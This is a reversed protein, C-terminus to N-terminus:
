VLQPSSSSSISLSDIESFPLKSGIIRKHLVTQFPKSIWALVLEANNERVDDENFLKRSCKGPAFLALNLCATYLIYREIVANGAAPFYYMINSIEHGATIRRRTFGIIIPRSGAERGDSGSESQGGAIYIYIYRTLSHSLGLSRETM